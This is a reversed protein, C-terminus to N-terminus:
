IFAFGIAGAYSAILVVLMVYGLIGKEAFDKNLKAATLGVAAFFLLTGIWEPM